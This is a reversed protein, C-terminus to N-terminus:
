VNNSHVFWIETQGELSPLLTSSMYAGHDCKWHQMHFYMCKWEDWKAHRPM